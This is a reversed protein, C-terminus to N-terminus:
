LYCVKKMTTTETTVVTGDKKRNTRRDETVVKTEVHKNSKAVYIKQMKLKSKSDVESGDVGKRNTAIDKSTQVAKLGRGKGATMHSLQSDEARPEGRALVIAHQGDDEEEEEEQSVRARKAAHGETPGKNTLRRQPAM